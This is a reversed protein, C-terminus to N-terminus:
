FENQRTTFARGTTMFNPSCAALPAFIRPYVIEIVEDPTGHEPHYELTMALRQLGNEVLLHARYLGTLIGACEAPRVAEDLM